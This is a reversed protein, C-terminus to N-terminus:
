TELVTVGASRAARHLDKGRTALPLARRAAVDLYAADYLTLGHTRALQLIAGPLRPQIEPDTRIALGGLISFFDAVLSRSICGCREAVLLVNPVEFHWISPVWAEEESLRELM